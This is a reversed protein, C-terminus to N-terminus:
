YSIQGLATFNGPFYYGLTWDFADPPFSLVDFIVFPFEPATSADVLCFCEVDLEVAFM